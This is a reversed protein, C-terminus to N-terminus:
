ENGRPNGRQGGHGLKTGDPLTITLLTGGRGGDHLPNIEVVVKDGAKVITPTWGIRAQQGTSALEISWQQPQHTTENEVMVRLWTHPNTWELEKVTGSLTVVKTQDFMAFSHHAAAPLALAASVIVALSLVRFNMPSERLLRHKNRPIYQGRLRGALRGAQSFAVSLCPM